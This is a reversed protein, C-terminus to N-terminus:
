KKKSRVYYILLIIAAIFYLVGFLLLEINRNQIKVGPIHIIIGPIILLILVYKYPKKVVIYNMLILVIILSFAILPILDSINM